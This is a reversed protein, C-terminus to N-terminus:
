ETSGSPFFQPVPGSQQPTVTPKTPESDASKPKQPPHMECGVSGALLGILLYLIYAKKM